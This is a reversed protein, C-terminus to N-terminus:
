TLSELLVKVLGKIVISETNNALFYEHASNIKIDKKPDDLAMLIAQAIGDHHMSKTTWANDAFHEKQWSSEPIIVPKKLFTAELVSLGPPDYSPEVVASANHILSRLLAGCPQVYPLFKVGAHAELKCQRAYDEDRVGGVFVGNMGLANLARVLELQNKVPELLGISLIYNGSDCIVLALDEDLQGGFQDAIPLSVMKTKHASTNIYESFNEFESKSKFILVDALAILNNIRDIESLSPASLWWVNPFLFIKRNQAKASQLIPLGSAEISYHIVGDYFKLPKSHPGYIDSEVGAGNLMHAMQVLASEGGGSTAFATSHTTLIFKINPM